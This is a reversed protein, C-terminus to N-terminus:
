TLQINIEKQQNKVHGLLKLLKIQLLYLKVLVRQFDICIMALIDWHKVIKLQPHKKVRSSGARGLSGLGELVEGAKLLDLEPEYWAKRSRRLRELSEWGEKVKRLGQGQGEM